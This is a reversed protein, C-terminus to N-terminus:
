QTAQLWDNIDSVAQSSYLGSPTQRLKEIDASGLVLLSMILVVNNWAMRCTGSLM